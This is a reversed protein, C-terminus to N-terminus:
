NADDFRTVYDNMLETTSLFSHIRRLSIDAEIIASLAGPFLNFSIQLVSFLGIMAFIIGTTLTNGLAVYVILTANLVFTRTFFAALLNLFSLLNRNRLAKM